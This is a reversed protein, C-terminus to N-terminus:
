SPILPGVLLAVREVHAGLLPWTLVGLPPLLRCAPFLARELFWSTSAGQDGVELRWFRSFISKQQKFRGTQPMKDRCGSSALAANREHEGEPQGPSVWAVPATEGPSVDSWFLALMALAGPPEGSMHVHASCGGCDM